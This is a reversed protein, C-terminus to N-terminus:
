DEDVFSIYDHQQLFPNLNQTIGPTRAEADVNNSTSGEPSSLGGPSQRTAQRM